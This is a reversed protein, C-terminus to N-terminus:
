YSDAAIIMQFGGKVFATYVADYRGTYSIKEIRDLPIKQYFKYDGRDTLCAIYLTLSKGDTVYRCLLENELIDVQYSKKSDIAALLKDLEALNQYQNSAHLVASKRAKESSVSPINFAKVQRYAAVVYSGLYEEEPPTIVRVETVVDNADIYLLNWEQLYDSFLTKARMLYNINTTNIARYKVKSSEPYLTKMFTDSVAYWNPEASETNYNVTKWGSGALPLRTIPTFNEAIYRAMGVPAVGEIEYVDLIKNQDRSILFIHNEKFKSKEGEGNLTVLVASMGHITDYQCEGDIEGNRDDLTLGDGGPDNENFTYFKAAGALKKGAYFKIESVHDNKVNTIEKPYLFEVDNLVSDTTAAGEATLRVFVCTCVSVLLLLCLTLAIVSFKKKPTELMASLRMKMTEKGSNFYTTFVTKQGASADMAALVTRGYSCRISKEAGRLVAEDCSLECEIDMRRRMIYVLPNFWHLANVLFALFKFYLDKRRYHIIEHRLIFELGELNEASEPLLIKPHFFGILMASPLTNYINLSINRRIGLERKVREFIERTDESAARFQQRKLMAIFVGYKAAGNLLFLLAGFLWCTTLIDTLQFMAPKEFSNELDPRDADATNESRVTDSAASGSAALAPGDASGADLAQRATEFFISETPIRISLTPTGKPALMNLPLLSCLCAAIWVNYRWKAQYRNQFFPNLFLLLLIGVSAGASIGAFYSFM